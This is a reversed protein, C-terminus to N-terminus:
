AANCAAFSRIRRTSALITAPGGASYIISRAWRRADLQEQIAKGNTSRVHAAYDVLKAPMEEVPLVHDVLGTSIASRLIADYKASELTQAMAMGGYEKIARLGLTGDTGTGSLMICVAHEACDEALSSFLSDIPMRYGRPATPPAIHLTGDRVTLTANPPIIYVSNPAVRTGDRAQEVPMATCRALLEPLASAHDPALHQVVVFGIGADSAMHRFFKELAELGGASAGLAAIVFENNGQSV